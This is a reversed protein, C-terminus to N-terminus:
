DWFQEPHEKAKKFFARAKNECKFEGALYDYNNEGEAESIFGRYKTIWVRWMKRNKAIEIRFNRRTSKM